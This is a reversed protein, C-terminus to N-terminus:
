ANMLCKKSTLIGNFCNTLYSYGGHSFVELSHSPNIWVLQKEDNHFRGYDEIKFDLHKQHIKDKKKIKLLTQGNGQILKGKKKDEIFNLWKGLDVRHDILYNKQFLLSITSKLKQAEYM